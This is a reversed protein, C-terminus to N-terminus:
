HQRKRSGVVGPGNSNRNRVLRVAGIESAGLDQCAANRNAFSAELEALSRFKSSKKQPAKDSLTDANELRYQMDANELRTPPDLPNADLFLGFGGFPGFGASGAEYGESALIPPPPPSCLPPASVLPKCPAKDALGVQSHLQPPPPPAQEPPGESSSAAHCQQSASPPPKPPAKPPPGPPPAVNAAARKMFTAAASAGVDEIGNSEKADSTLMSHTPSTGSMTPSEWHEYSDDWDYSDYMQEKYQKPCQKEFSERLESLPRFGRRSAGEGVAGCTAAARPPRGSSCSGISSDSCRGGLMSTDWTSFQDAYAAHPGIPLPATAPSGASTSGASSVAARVSPETPSSQDKAQYGPVENTHSAWPMDSDESAGRSRVESFSAEDAFQERLHQVLDHLDAEAKALAKAPGKALFAAPEAARFVISVDPNESRLWELFEGDAGLAVIKLREPPLRPGDLRVECLVDYCPDGRRAPNRARAM